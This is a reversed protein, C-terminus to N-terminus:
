ANLLGNSIAYATLMAVNKLGLKHMVSARHKEVTKISLNLLSAVEKNGLGQAVLRLVERERATLTELPTIGPTARAGTTIMNSVVRESVEPSLYVRGSIVTRIAARLEDHGSEKLIYGVAGSRLAEQIYEDTKHMTIVLVKVEPVRRKIEGIAHMGGRGPMNLDMLVVDPRLEYALRVADEGTAVEGVVEFDAEASLLARIGARVLTHDEAILIRSKLSM